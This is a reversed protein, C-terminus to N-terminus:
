SYAQNKKAQSQSSFLPSNEVGKGQPLTDDTYKESAPIFFSVM